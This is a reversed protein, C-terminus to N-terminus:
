AADSAGPTVTSPRRTLYSGYIAESNATVANLVAAGPTDIVGEYRVNFYTLGVNLGKLNSPRWEGGFTWTRSTEPSLDPNGGGRQIANSTGGTGLYDTITRIRLLPRKPAEVRRGLPELIAIADKLSDRVKGDKDVVKVPGQLGGALLPAALLLTIFGKAM